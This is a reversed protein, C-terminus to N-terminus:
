VLLQGKAVICVDGTVKIEKTDPDAFVKMESPRGVFRGQRLMIDEGENCVGWKCLYAGVPGAASGTAADEVAGFNDWTRGERKEVDFIYVFKANVGSLLQEFQGSGIRAKDLGSVLPVILYPLGTSVVEMPLRPHLDEETLNLAQMFVRRREDDVIGQFEPVGQNMTAQYYSKMKVSESRVSKANLVFSVSISSGEPYLKEHVSCAAGIIPHGAFDLEEEVTFIRARFTKEGAERLFITEFQRFEQAMKLMIEASLEERHFVVALGNGSLIQSSFVDVHYYDM